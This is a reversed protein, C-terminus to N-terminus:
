YNMKYDKIICVCRFGITASPKTYSIDKGIRMQELRNNWAGGKCIGKESTMESVNGILNYLGFYNKTYSNVPAMVDVNTNLYKNKGKVIIIDLPMICNLKANGKEDVGNNYFINLSAAALLEWENKTPLRYEINQNKFDKKISLFLKVRATRWKCFALGQEYSVGVVPYDKYAPHRYYYQCYPMNYSLKEIWVNTDPLTFLHEKSNKGYAQATWDEFERYSFNSLETEDAYLTDNIQVTGPPTFEKQKIFSLGILAISLIFLTKM